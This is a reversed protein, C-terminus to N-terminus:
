VTRAKFSRFLIRLKKLCRSKKNRTVQENAYGMKAAIESTEMGNFFAYVLIRECDGGMKQLIKAAAKIDEDEDENFLYAWEETEIKDMVLSEKKYKRVKNFWKNKVIAFLFTRLSCNLVFDSTRIKKYFVILVDQFLDAGDEASGGKQLIFSRIGPYYEEYLFEFAQDVKRDDNARLYEIIKVEEM